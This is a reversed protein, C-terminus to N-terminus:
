DSDRSAQAKKNGRKGVARKPKENGEAQWAAMEEEHKTKAEKARAEYPGKEKESMEQWMAGAKKTIAAVSVKKSKGKDDLEGAIEAELEQRIAARKENTFLFYASQPKKPM